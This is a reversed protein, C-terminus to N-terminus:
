EEEKQPAVTVRLPFQSRYAVRATNLDARLKPSAGGKTSKAKVFELERELVGLKAKTRAIEYELPHSM